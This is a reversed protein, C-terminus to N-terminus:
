RAYNEGRLMKILEPPNESRMFGSMICAGSAGASLVDAFNEASIGGIAYVPLATARVTERLFDLGRPPLGKKCDTAFVHGATVYSAGLCEAEHVDAQSHCSAGIESFQRKESEFLTRLIALPLHISEAGLQVAQKAFTHLTCKVGYKRCLM